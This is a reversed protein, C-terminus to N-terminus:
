PSLFARSWAFLAWKSFPACFVFYHFAMKSGNFINSRLGKGVLGVLKTSKDPFYCKLWKEASLSGVIIPPVVIGKHLCDVNYVYSINTYLM